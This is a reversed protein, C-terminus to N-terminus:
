CKQREYLKWKGSQLVCGDKRNVGYERMTVTVNGDVYMINKDVSLTLEQLIFKSERYLLM